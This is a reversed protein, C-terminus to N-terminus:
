ANHSTVLEALTQCEWPDRCACDVGELLLQRSHSLRSQLSDIQLLKRHAASRWRESVSARDGDILGQIESLTFGASRALDIIALRRLVSREYRRQGGLREAPALLGRREYFRIKSPRVGAARALEGIRLSIQESM